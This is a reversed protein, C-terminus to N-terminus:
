PKLVEMSAMASNSYRDLDVGLAKAKTKAAKDAKIFCLCDVYYTHGDSLKQVDEFLTVKIV